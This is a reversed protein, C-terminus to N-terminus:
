SESWLRRRRQFGALSLRVADRRVAELRRIVKLRRERERRLRAVLREGVRHPQQAVVGGASDHVVRRTIYLRAAAAVVDLQQQSIVDHGESDRRDRLADRRRPADLLVADVARHALALADEFEALPEPPRRYIRRVQGILAAPRRNEEVGVRNRPIFLHTYQQTQLLIYIVLCVLVAWLSGPKAGACDAQILGYM